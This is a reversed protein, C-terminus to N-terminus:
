GWFFWVVGFNYFVHLLIPTGLTDHRERFYGFILSPFFVLAAWLPPQHILHLAAFCLSTLLNALSLIGWSRRSLSALWDQVVGRFVIEELVPYVLVPMLFLWPQSLPWLWDDTPVMVFLLVTWAMPGAALALGLVPDTWQIGRCRFRYVPQWHLRNLWGGRM